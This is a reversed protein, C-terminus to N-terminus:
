SMSAVLKGKPMRVRMPKPRSIRALLCEGVFLIRFVFGVVAIKIMFLVLMLNHFSDFVDAIHMTKGM